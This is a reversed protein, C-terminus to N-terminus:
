VQIKRFYVLIILSPCTDTNPRYRYLRKWLIPVWMTTLVWHIFFRIDLLISRWFITTSHCDHAERGTWVIVTVFVTKTQSNLHFNCSTTQLTTWERARWQDATDTRGTYRMITKYSQNNQFKKCISGNCLNCITQTNHTENVGFSHLQVPM